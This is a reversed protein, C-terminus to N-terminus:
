QYQFRFQQARKETPFRKIPCTALPLSNKVTLSSKKSKPDPWVKGEEKHGVDLQEKIGYGCYYCRAAKYEYKEKKGYNKVPVKFGRGNM